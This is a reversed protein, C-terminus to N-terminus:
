CYAPCVSAAQNDDVEVPKGFMVLTSGDAFIEVHRVVGGDEINIRDHQGLDVRTKSVDDYGVLQFWRDGYFGEPYALKGPYMHLITINSQNEAWAYENLQAIAEQGAQKRKGM